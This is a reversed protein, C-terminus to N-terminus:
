ASCLCLQGRFLLPHLISRAFRLRAERLPVPESLLEYITAGHRSAPVLTVPADPDPVTFYRSALTFGAARALRLARDMRWLAALRADMRGSRARGVLCLYGGGRLAPALSSLIPQLSVRERRVVDLDVFAWDVRSQRVEAIQKVAGPQISVVRDVHLRLAALARSSSAGIFIASDFSAASALWIWNAAAQSVGPRVGDM